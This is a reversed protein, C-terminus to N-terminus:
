LYVTITNTSDNNIYHVRELSDKIYDFIHEKMFMHNVIEQYVNDDACKITIESKGDKYADKFINSIKGVDLSDLYTGERVYYNATIATCYPLEIISDLTHTKRIEKTTINLYDYNIEQALIKDSNAVEQGEGWTADVYYYEGDIKVLNFAHPEGDASGTVVMCSIDMTYLLYQFAEAYGQCVSEGYVFVSNANQNHKSNINYTTNLIIFEYAAKVKEYTDMENTIEKHFQLVYEDIITQTAKINEIDMSYKGGFLISDIEEGYRYISYIYGDVFFLEPHDQIVSMFAIGIDKETKTPIKIETERAALIEYMKIYLPKLNESIHSYAYLGSHDAGQNLLNLKEALEGITDDNSFVDTNIGNTEENLQYENSEIEFNLEEERIELNGLNVDTLLSETEFEEM